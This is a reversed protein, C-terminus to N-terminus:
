EGMIISIGKVHQFYDLNKHLDNIQLSNCHIFLHTVKEKLFRM